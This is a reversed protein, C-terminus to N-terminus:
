LVHQGRLGVIVFFVRIQLVQLTAQSSAPGSSQTGFAEVLTNRPLPGIRFFVFFMLMIEIALAFADGSPIEGFPTQKARPAQQGTTWFNLRCTHVVTKTQPRANWSSSALDQKM